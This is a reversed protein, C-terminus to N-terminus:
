CVGVKDVMMNIKTGESESYSLSAGNWECKNYNAPSQLNTNAGTSFIPLCVIGSHQGDNTVGFTYCASPTTSTNMNLGGIMYGKPNFNATRSSSRPIIYDRYADGDIPNQVMTFVGNDSLCRNDFACEDFKHGGRRMTFNAIQARYHYVANPMRDAM